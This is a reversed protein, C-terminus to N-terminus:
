PCMGAVLWYVWKIAPEDRIVVFRSLGSPRRNKPDIVASVLFEVGGFARHFFCGCARWGLMERPRLVGFYAVRWLAAFSFFRLARTPTRLGLDFAAVFLSLMIEELLGGAFQRTAM